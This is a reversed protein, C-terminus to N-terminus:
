NAGYDVILRLCLTGRLISDSLDCAADMITEPAMFFQKGPMSTLTRCAKFNM